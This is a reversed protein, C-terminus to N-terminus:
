LLCFIEKQRAFFRKGADNMSADQIVLAGGGVNRHREDDKIVHTKNDRYAWVIIPTPYGSSKCELVISHGQTVYTSTKQASIIMAPVLYLQTKLFSM